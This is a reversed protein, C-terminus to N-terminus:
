PVKSQDEMQLRKSMWAPWAWPIRGDSERTQEYLLWGISGITPVEFDRLQFRQLYGSLRLSGTIWHPGHSSQFKSANHSAFRRAVLHALSGKAPWPPERVGHPIQIPYQLTTFGASLWIVIDLLCCFPPYGCDILNQCKASWFRNQYRNSSNFLSVSLQWPTCFTPCVWIGSPDAQHIVM